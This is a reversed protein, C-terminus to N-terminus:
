KVIKIRQGVTPQGDPYLGNLLRLHDAADEKIPSNKALKEFTDGPKVTILKLKQASALEREDRKLGRTSSATALMDADYQQLLEATQAVSLFQYAQNGKFIVSIRATQQRGFPSDIRTFGTYGEEGGSISRGNRIEGYNQEIFEKPSRSTTAQAITVRMLANQEPSAAILQTPQNSVRWNAPFELALDLEKHYFNRGRLIGQSESPGYDMGDTFELFRGQADRTTATNTFKEAEKIVEQLRQDNKPHTAFLGHYARPERGERAARVKDFEEQDKLIGVVNIMEQPDYGTRALYEAGLRDAELEHSRGYGRVLATSAFNAVEGIQRHGSVISAATSLVGGVTAASQQRVGHRATVHGIEHGLVGALEAESNMYAMIGRTVYVYGGPLAFANVEPSDLVFAHFELDSRHSNAALEDVLGTVYEQLAPDDYLSYQRLVNQHEQQGIRLEKEESTFVLNPRGTVPNTACGTIYAALLFILFFQFLRAM